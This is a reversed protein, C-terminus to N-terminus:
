GEWYYHLIFLFPIQKDQVMAVCDIAQDLLLVVYFAFSIGCNVLVPICKNTQTLNSLCLPAASAHQAWLGSTRLDFSREALCNVTKRFRWTNKITDRTYLLSFIVIKFSEIITTTSTNTLNSVLIAHNFLLCPSHKCFWNVEIALSYCNAIYLEYSPEEITKAIQQDTANALQTTVIKM